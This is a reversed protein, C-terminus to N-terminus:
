VEDQKCSAPLVGDFHFTFLERQNNIYRRMMHLSHSVSSLCFSRNYDDAIHMPEATRYAAYGQDATRPVCVQVTRTDEEVSLGLSADTSPRIRLFISINRKNDREGESHNSADHEAPQEEDSM